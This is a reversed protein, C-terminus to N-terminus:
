AAPGPITNAVNDNVSPHQANQLAWHLSPPLLEQPATIRSPFLSWRRRSSCFRQVARHTFDDDLGRIHIIICKFIGWVCTDGVLYERSTNPRQCSACECKAPNEPTFIFRSLNIWNLLAPCPCPWVIARLTRYCLKAPTERIDPQDLFNM